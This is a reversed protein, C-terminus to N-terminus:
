PDFPENTIFNSGVVPQFSQSYSLFPSLGNDFNYIAALRGSTESADNNIMKESPTKGKSTDTRD